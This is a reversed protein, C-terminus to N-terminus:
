DEKPPDVVVPLHPRVANMTVRIIREVTAPRDDGVSKSVVLASPLLARLENEIREASTKPPAAM